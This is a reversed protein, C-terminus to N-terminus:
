KSPGAYLSTGSDIAIVCKGTKERLYDCFITKENNIMIEEIDIEWYNKSEVNVFTFNSLMNKKDIEGFSINSTEDGESLFM